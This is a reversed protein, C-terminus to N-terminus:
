SLEAFIRNEDQVENLKCLVLDSSMSFHLVQQMHLSCLLERMIGAFIDSVNDFNSKCMCNM